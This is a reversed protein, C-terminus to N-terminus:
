DNESWFSIDVISEAGIESEVVGDGEVNIGYINWDSTNDPRNGKTYTGEVEVEITLTATFSITQEIGLLECLEDMISEDVANFYGDDIWEKVKDALSYWKTSWARTREESDSLRNRLFELRTDVEETM